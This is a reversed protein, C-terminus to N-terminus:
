VIHRGYLDFSMLVGKKVLINLIGSLLVGIGSLIYFESRSFLVGICEKIIKMISLLVVNFKLYKL